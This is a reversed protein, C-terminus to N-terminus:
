LFDSIVLYDISIVMSFCDYIEVASTMGYNKEIRRGDGLLAYIKDETCREDTAAFSVLGNWALMSLRNFGDRSVDAPDSSGVLFAM